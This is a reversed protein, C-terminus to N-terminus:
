FLVGCMTVEGAGGSGLRQVGFQPIEFCGPLTTVLVAKLVFGGEVTAWVAPTGASAQLSKRRLTQVQAPGYSTVTCDTAVAPRGDQQVEILMVAPAVTYSKAKESKM